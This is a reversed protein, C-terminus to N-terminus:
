GSRYRQGRCLINIIQFGTSMMDMVCISQHSKDKLQNVLEDAMKLIEIAQHWNVHNNDNASLLSTAQTFYAKIQNLYFLSRQKRKDHFFLWWTTVLAIAAVIAAIATWDLSPSNSAISPAEFYFDLM